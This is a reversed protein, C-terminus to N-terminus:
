RNRNREKEVTTLGQAVMAGQVFGLWRNWKNDDMIEHESLLKELMWKLHELSANEERHSNVRQFCFEDLLSTVVARKKATDM